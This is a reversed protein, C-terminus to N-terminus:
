VPSNIYDDRSAGLVPTDPIFAIASEIALGISGLVPLWNRQGLARIPRIAEGDIGIREITKVQRSPRAGAAYVPIASADKERFVSALGPLLYQLFIAVNIVNGNIWNIGLNKVRCAELRGGPARGVATQMPCANRSEIELPSLPHNRVRLIAILDVDCGEASTDPVAGNM